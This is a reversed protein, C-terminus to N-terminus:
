TGKYLIGNDVFESDLLFQTYEHGNGSFLQEVPSIECFYGDKMVAVVHCFNRLVRMDHSIMIISFGYKKHLEELLDLIQMQVQTDLSSIAEDCILIEPELVLARAIAIRQCQGTSLQPPRRIQTEADIGAQELYFYAKEKRERATDIHLYKLPEQVLQLANRRPNLSARADQFVIQIHRCIERRSKGKLSTIDRGRFKIAGGSPKELGAICKALTSKGCGSQGLIGIIERKNINMGLGCLVKVDDRYAKHLQEVELITEQYELKGSSRRKPLNFAQILMQTYPSKPLSLVEGTIGEDVINGKELVIVRDSAAYAATIDHTILLVAVHFKKQVSRLVSLVEKQSIVDLASTPEDAILIDPRLCLTLAICVRQCMGGSLQFPYSSLVRGPESFNLLSLMNFSMDEIERAAGMKHFLLTEHFHSRITKMPNLALQADQYIMTIKKGRIRRWDILSNSLNVSLEGVCMVGDSVIASPPLLGMMAKACTSKGSGSEGLLALVEGCRLEFSLCDLVIMQKDNQIYRVNLNKLALVTEPNM